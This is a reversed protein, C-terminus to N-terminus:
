FASEDPRGRISWWEFTLRWGAILGIIPLSAIAVVGRGIVLAPILYYLLALIVSAAGLARLLGTFLDRRESLARLDYLDCYHLCVQLVVAVLMARGVLETM